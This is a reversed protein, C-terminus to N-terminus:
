DEHHLRFLGAEEMQRLASGGIGPIETLSALSHRKLDACTHIGAKALHKCVAPSLRADLDSALRARAHEALERVGPDDPRATYTLVQNRHYVQVQILFGQDKLEKRM